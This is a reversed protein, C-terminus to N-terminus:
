APAGELTKLPGYQERVYDLTEGGGDALAAEDDEMLWTGDVARTWKDGDKDVVVTPAAPKPVLPTLTGLDGRKAADSVDHLRGVRGVEYWTGRTTLLYGAYGRALPFKESEYLGPETPMPPKPVIKEVTYSSAFFGALRPAAFDTVGIDLIRNGNYQAVKARLVNDGKTVIVEDGVSVDLIQTVRTRTENATM